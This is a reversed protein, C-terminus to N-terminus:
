PKPISDGPNDADTRTTDAPDSRRGDEWESALSFGVFALLTGM